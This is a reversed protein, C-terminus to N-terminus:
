CTHHGCPRSDRESPSLCGAKPRPGVLGRLLLFHPHLLPLPLSVSVFPCSPTQGLCLSVPRAQGPTLLLGQIDCHHRARERHWCAWTGRRVPHYSCSPPSHPTVTPTNPYVGWLHLSGPCGRFKLGPFKRSLPESCSPVSSPFLAGGSPHWLQRRLPHKSGKSGATRTSAM